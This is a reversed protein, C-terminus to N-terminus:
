VMASCLRCSSVGFHWCTWFGLFCGSFSWCGSPLIFFFVVLVGDFGMSARFGSCNILLYHLGSM